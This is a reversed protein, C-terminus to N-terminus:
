EIQGGQTYYKMFQIREYSVPTNTELSSMTGAFRSVSDYGKEAMWTELEELMLGVQKAGNNYIASAIQTAAGGALLIKIVDAGTHVGTSACLDCPVEGCKMAIWRLSNTLEASSSYKNSAVVVQMKKIDIDPSIFRNFLVIGDVGTAAINDIVRNLNAFYPSIKVAIPITLEARVKHIIDLHLQEIDTASYIKSFPQIAINLELADAGADQLRSAFSTWGGAFICNISAIVPITLKKKAERINQECSELYERRIRKETYDSTEFHQIHSLNNVLDHERLYDVDLFIQEEFVSKMVVAGVGSQELTQLDNITATLGSSGAIIPNKLHLGMYKVSLDAM